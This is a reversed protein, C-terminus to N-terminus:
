VETIQFIGERGSEIALVPLTQLSIKHPNVRDTNDNARVM